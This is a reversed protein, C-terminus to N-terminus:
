AGIRLDVIADDNLRFTFTLTAPSGAFNGSVEAQVEVVHDRVILDFPKAIHQNEAKARRWWDEIAAHGRHTRNEDEIVADMTFASLPAAGDSKGDADFYTRIPPPLNM